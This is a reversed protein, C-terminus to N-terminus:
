IRYEPLVNVLKSGLLIDLTDGFAVSWAAKGNTNNGVIATSGDTFVYQKGHQNVWLVRHKPVNFAVTYIGLSNYFRRAVTNITINAPHPM